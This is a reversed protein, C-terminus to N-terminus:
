RARRPPSLRTLQPSVLPGSLQYTADALASAAGPEPTKLSEALPSFHLRLDLNRSSDLSGAGDIEADNAMLAIDQFQITGDECTFTAAAKPFLSDGPQRTLTRLSDTLDINHFEAHNLTASGRCALSSVLAARTAGSADFSIEGSTSGAFLDALQPSVAVLSSLDVGSFSTSARYSPLPGLDAVLSGTLDGGYFQGSANALEINRGDLSLTGELNRLLVPALAFENLKLEGQARLAAAAQGISSRSNLFPLMRDILSERWRPNLWRDLDAADLRDASLAFQWGGVADRHDLTGNWHTGFAHASLVAVHRSGPKFEARAKIETVPQNLFSARLSAGDSDAAGGIEVFGVPEVSWPRMGQWRLDCRVAGGVDWGRSFNWGLLSAASVLDRVQLMGGAIRLNPTRSLGPKFSADIHWTGVTPLKPAGFSLTVPLLSIRNDDYRLDVPGLHVPVRMGLGSFDAGDTAIAASEVQLPWGSLVGSASATGGMVVRDSVGSHFARAWALLDRLDLTVDSLEIRDPSAANQSVSSDDWLFRGKIQANSHLAEIRAQTLEIASREPDIKMQAIFNLAPNDPRLVLDWRHIQRMEARGQLDWEGDLAKASVAMTLNGRVGYDVGRALRLADPISADRWTLDLVAPLLRSSTGGVHGALHVSGAQQTVVSARWPTAEIDMRWRGPGDAEVTGDVSVFAFPLKEDGLKFNVRGGAVEIREFRVLSARAPSNLGHQAPRPLWEALNWDGSSNRVVNLSPQALSLTGLELNGRVLSQWRLRVRLSDARLFYEQGFRPDEGVTVSRADLALGSRLSLEYRGVQVPRGFAAALHETLRKQLSTYRILASAGIEFSWLCAVLLLIWRPLQRLHSRKLREAELEPAAVATTSDDETVVSLRQEAL